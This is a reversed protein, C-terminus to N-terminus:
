VEKVYKNFYMFLATLTFGASCVAMLTFIGSKQLILGGLVTALPIFGQSIVSILGMVKSLMSTDVKKMMVTSIPINICTMLYGVLAFWICTLILFANLSKGDVVLIKYGATLIIMSVAMKMIEATISKGVKEESQRVSMLAAGVLYFVALAVNIISMWMEPTLIHDFLYSEAETVDTQVFYPLFNSTIPTSFFNIFLAISMIVMIPKQSSVYTLGSKMDSFVDKVTLSNGKNRQDYRVFMEMVASFIYCLGVTLFLLQVRMIAYLMGALIVGFISNISTQISFYSNAQQLQQPEVIEPILASSAPSFIGNVMHFLIGLAFLIIVHSSTDKMLIMLVTALIIFGGNIFDCTYMIRAKNYRDGLVGGFPTVIVLAASGLRLFLGQLFANNGTIELIYLSVAFSYLAHGLQSVLSGFFVLRFNRLSFVNSKREDVARELNIETM